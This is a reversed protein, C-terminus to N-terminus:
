PRRQRNDSADKALPWTVTQEGLRLQVEQRAIRVLTWGELQEGARVRVYGDKGQREFVASQLPGAIVTGRLLFGQPPSPAPPPQPVPTSRQAAQKAKAATELALLAKRDPFPRRSPHFLPRELASRYDDFAAEAKLTLPMASSRKAEIDRRQEVIPGADAFLSLWQWASILLLAAALGWSLALKISRKQFTESM